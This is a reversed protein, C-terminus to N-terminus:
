RREEFVARLHEELAALKGALSGDIFQDKAEVVFGGILSPDVELHLLFEQGFRERLREKLIAREEQSLPVASRVRAVTGAAQAQQRAIRQFEMASFVISLVPLTAAPEERAVRRLERALGDLLEVQELSVLDQERLRRGIAELHDLWAETGMSSGSPKPVETLMAERM